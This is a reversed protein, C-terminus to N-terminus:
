LAESAVAVTDLQRGRAAPGRVPCRLKGSCVLGPTQPFTLRTFICTLFSLLLWLLSGPVSDVTRNFIGWVACEGDYGNKRTYNRLTVLATVTDHAMVDSDGARKVGRSPIGPATLSGGGRWSGRNRKRNTIKGIRSTEHLHVGVDRPGHSAEKM